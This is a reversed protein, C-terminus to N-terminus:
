RANSEQKAQDLAVTDVLLLLRNEGPAVAVCYDKSERGYKRVYPKSLGVSEKFPSDSPLAAAVLPIKRAELAELLEHVNGRRWEVRVGLRRAVTEVLRREREELAAPVDGAGSAGVTLVGSQQVKATWGQQDRPLDAGCGAGALAFVGLLAVVRSFRKQRPM